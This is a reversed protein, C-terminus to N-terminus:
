NTSALYEVLCAWPLVGHFLIIQDWIDIARLNLFEPQSRNSTTEASEQKHHSMAKLASANKKYNKEPLDSHSCKVGSLIQIQKKWGGPPVILRPGSRNEPKPTRM